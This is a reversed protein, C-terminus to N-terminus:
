APIIKLPKVFQKLLFLFRIVQTEARFFESLNKELKDGGKKAFWLSHSSTKIGNQAKPIKLIKPWFDGFFIPGMQGYNVGTYNTLVRSQIKVSTLGSLTKWTSLGVVFGQWNHSVTVPFLDSWPIRLRGPTQPFTQSIECRRKLRSVVLSSHHELKSTPDNLPPLRLILEVRGFFM